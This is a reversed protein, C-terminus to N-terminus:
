CHLIISKGYKKKKYIKFFYFDESTPKGSSKRTCLYYMKKFAAFKNKYNTTKGIGITLAIPL